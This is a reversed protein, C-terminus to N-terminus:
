RNSRLCDIRTVDLMICFAARQIWEACAGGEHLVNRLNMLGDQRVVECRRWTQLQASQVLTLGMMGQFCIMADQSLEKTAYDFINPKEGGPDKFDTTIADGPDRGIAGLMGFVQTM